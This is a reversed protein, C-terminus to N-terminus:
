VSHLARDAGEDGHAFTTIEDAVGAPDQLCRWAPVCVVPGEYLGELMRGRRLLRRLEAGNRAQDVLILASGGRTRVCLDARHGRVSPATTADAARRRLARQLVRVAPTAAEEGAEDEGGAEAWRCLEGGVGGQRAWFARDGVAILRLRTRTLATTWLREPVGPGGAAGPAGTASVVMVDVGRHEARFHEPGGVRVERTFEQREALRRLLSWQAQHPAVVGLRLGSPLGGDLQRLLVAVRYAEDRNVASAGPVAESRGPAHRWEVAPGTVAPLTRPDTLVHVRGGYCHRSALRAIEPRSRDHEDLRLRAGHGAEASAACASYASAGHGLGWRRLWEGGLGSDTRARDEDAPDMLRPPPAQAPDGLVLARRARYLLPLLRAVPIRDAEAVVVLDFLGPTCPLAHAADARVSWAPVATLLHALGSRRAADHWNLAEIRSTIAPRARAARRVASSELYAAGSLLHCALAADLDATLDALPALRRRRDLCSRWESELAAARALRDLNEPAPNVGLERRIAARHARAAMGAGQAREARRQWTEPEGTDVTFLAEPDWGAEALRRREAGLLALTHGGAAVADVARWAEEARAWDDRLSQRDGVADPPDSRLVTDAIGALARAEEEAPGGVPLVRHARDAGAAAALRSPLRGDPAVLLVSQGAACATRVATDAVQDAGTGPPAAAVTLPRRMASSVVAHHAESLRHPSVPLVPEDRASGGELLAALATSDAKEARIGDGGLDAALGADSAPAPAPAVRGRDAPDEGARFLLAINHAGPRLDALPMVGRLRAPVVDDIRDIELRALVMRAKAELDSIKATTARGAGEDASKGNDASRANKDATKDAASSRVIRRFEALEEPTEIGLRRLLAPNVEPRSAIRVRPRAPDQEPLPEADVVFLPAARRVAGTGYPAHPHDPEVPARVHDAGYDRGHDARHGDDRGWSGRDPGHGREEPLIVLPYGYRLRGGGSGDVLAAAGVPVDVTTREGTFVTESGGPLAAWADLRSTDLDVLHGLIREREVCDRHYGVLAALRETPTRPVPRVPAPGVPRVPADASRASSRGSGASTRDARRVPPVAPGLAAIGTAETVQAAADAVETAEVSEAPEAPEAAPPTETREETPPAIEAVVRVPEAPAEGDRDRLSPDSRPVAM